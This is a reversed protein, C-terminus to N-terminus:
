QSRGHRCLDGAPQKSRHGGRGDVVHETYGNVRDLKNRWQNDEVRGRRSSGCLDHQRGHSPGRDSHHSRERKRYGPLQEVACSRNGDLGGHQAPNDPAIAGEVTAFAADAADVSHSPPAPSVASADRAPRSRDHGVNSAGFGGFQRRGSKTGLDM